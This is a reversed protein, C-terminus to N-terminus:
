NISKEKDFIEVTIGATVWIGPQIIGGFDYYKQNLINNAEVYLKINNVQWTLRSDLLTYPTYNKAIGGVINYIGNRDYLTATSSWYLQKTIRLTLSAVLKNRMYDLAYKSIYDESEKNSNIYAYGLSVNQVVGKSTYGLLIELGITNLTTIQQSEWKAIESPKIWDILNQGKRFYPTMMVSLGKYSYEITAQYTVATEPKLNHNSIHTATTYYLDTFTPLRMSRNVNLAINWNKHPTYGVSLSWLPAIGYSSTSLTFAGLLSFKKIKATQRVWANVVNRTRKGLANSELYNTLYDVGISSKGFSWNYHGGLAATINDIFHNNHETYWSPANINDRFLEYHDYNRRYSLSSNVTFKGIEKRWSLSTLGTQTAEFQNPYELSYFGNAGFEKNQYGIQFDFFGIKAHEYMIRSYANITQFDTNDIYGDSRRYSAAALISLNNKTYSGSLNAYGYGYSGMELNAKISNRSFPSTSFDLAGTLAGVLPVNTILDINNTIELDIPLSHSQHGTRADSFDIGNLLIMAQDFSGGRISIDAQVGKTGRERLDISPSLRLADETTSLPSYPEAAANFVTIPLTTANTPSQKTESVVSEELEVIKQQTLTDNSQAYGTSSVAVISMTAGLVGIKVIKGLSSFAGYDKRTWRKFVIPCTTREGNQKDTQM